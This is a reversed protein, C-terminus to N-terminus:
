KVQNILDVIDFDITDSLEDIIPKVSDYNNADFCIFGSLYYNNASISNDIKIYYWARIQDIYDDKISYAYGLVGKKEVVGTNKNLKFYSDASSYETISSQLLAEVESKNGKFEDESFMGYTLDLLESDMEVSDLYYSNLSYTRNPIVPISMIFLKGETVWKMNYKELYNYNDIKESEFNTTMALSGKDQTGSVVYFGKDLIENNTNDNNNETVSNNLNNGLNESGNLLLKSGFVIGVAVTAVAIVILIIILNKKPRKLAQMSTPETPFTPPAVPEPTMTPATPVVPEPNPTTPQITEPPNPQTQLNNQPENDM